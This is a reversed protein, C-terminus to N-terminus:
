APTTVRGEVAALAIDSRHQSGDLHVGDVLRYAAERAMALTDGTGTCCVVRGGASRLTGDPDRRTGSHIVGPANAGSIVDGTHASVPYGRSAVVVTVAAGDRWRLPELDALRGTAAAHLLRSLPSGLLPLVVQTEPDGFRCNFEIVRPGRATVALGVYLLGAFPTGRAAMQELTPAVVATMVDDVLTKPTWDLPAYAGMGGTNPGSDGDGIRKFDQAPLLPVASRGDCVVFLSVEPGDLFEEVVVRRGLDLITLAHERASEIDSTVVVGKGAALGDDKVVFPAGFDAFAAEVAVPDDCTYARATPVGASTMVDKAFAKSGEIAAAAASPGFCAVGAARVADAVGAVLPAEPGIVVLDAPVRLALETVAVPDMPDVPEITASLGSVLKVGAM